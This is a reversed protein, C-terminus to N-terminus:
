RAGTDYLNEMDQVGIFDAANTLGNDLLLAIADRQTLTKRIEFLVWGFIHFMIRYQYGGKFDYLLKKCKFWGQYWSTELYLDRGPPSFDDGDKFITVGMQELVSDPVDRKIAECIATARNWPTVSQDGYFRGSVSIAVFYNGEPTVAVTLLAGLVNTWEYLPKATNSDYTVGDVVEYLQWDAM